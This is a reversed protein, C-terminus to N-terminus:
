RWYSQGGISCPVVWRCNDTRTDRRCARNAVFVINKELFHLWQFVTTSDNWVFTGEFQLSLARQWENRLIAALLGFQLELNPMTLAKTQEVRAKGFVFAIQMLLINPLTSEDDGWLMGGHYRCGDNFTTEELIKMVRTDAASRSDVQKYAGNSEMDYWSRFQETLISDNKSSTVAKFCISFLGTTSPLPGSLVWGLLSRVAIQTIPRDAEFYLPYLPICGSWPAVWDDVVTM